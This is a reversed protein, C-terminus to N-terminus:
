SYQDSAPDCVTHSAFSSRESLSHSCCCRSLLCIPFVAHRRRRGGSFHLNWHLRRKVFAAGLQGKEFGLAEIVSYATALAVCDQRGSPLGSCAIAVLGGRLKRWHNYPALPTPLATSTYATRISLPPLRFRSSFSILDCLGNMGLDIRPAHYDKPTM